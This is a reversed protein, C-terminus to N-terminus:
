ATPPAVTYLILARGDDKSLRQVAVPGERESPIAAKQTTPEREQEAGRPPEEDPPPSDPTRGAM